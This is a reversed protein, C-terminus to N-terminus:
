ISTIRCVTRRNLARGEETNNDAIPKGEGYGNSTIRDEAIGQSVLYKRVEAARNKSLLLNDADSGVNDTHGGIEVKLTKNVKLFHLLHQLEPKSEDLLQFKNTEYFISSMVVELGVSLPELQIDVDFYPTTKPDINRLSFFSSKFLYGRKDVFAAYDQNLPLTLMYRGTASNTQVSRITDGTTVNIFTVTADLPKLSGKDSVVGRVFTTFSPRIREDLEFKYIDSRGIGSDRSSNIYGFEGDSSVFINGESSSTNLPYGLNMPPLWGTPSYRSMFLDLAGYGPHEDSSFYLTKGDAHIFPCLEAGVTNIPEGLNKPETWAGKVLTTYWIDEAGKGGERRSSFYLTKGDNSICPQSDWRNSNVIPGLNQPKSWVNGMLRAVYIDCDGYGDKLGCAAFFVYQGDPSFSPAGENHETNVPPGLNKAPQWKGDVMESYYFDETFDRREASYGGTCGPRRSTFFITQGDATLNPLYEEGISNVNEGLNEPKFAIKRGANAKGFHSSKRHQDLVKFETASMPPKLAFYEEYHGAATAYDEEAFAAEALFLHVKPPLDKMLEKAKLAYRGTKKFDRLLYASAAAHFYCDGFAPELQLAEEYSLVASQYDRNHAQEMGLEYLELAKKSKIGYDSPKAKGGQAQAKCGMALLLLTLAMVHLPLKRM